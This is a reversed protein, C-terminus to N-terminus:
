VIVNEIIGNKKEVLSFFNKMEGFKWKELWVCILSFLVNEIKRSKKNKMGEGNEIRESRNIMLNSEDHKLQLGKFFFEIRSMIKNLGAEDIM